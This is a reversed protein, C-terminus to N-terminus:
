KILQKSLYTTNIRNVANLFLETSQVFSDRSNTRPAFLDFVIEGEVSLLLFRLSFFNPYTSVPEILVKRLSSFSRVLFEHCNVQGWGFRKDRSDPFEGEIEGNRQM